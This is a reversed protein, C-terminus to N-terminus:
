RVTAGRQVSFLLAEEGFMDGKHPLSLPPSLPPFFPTPQPPSSLFLSMPPAHARTLIVRLTAVCCLVVCLKWRRGRRWGGV